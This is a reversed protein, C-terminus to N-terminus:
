CAVTESLFISLYIMQCATMFLVFIYLQSVFHCSIETTQIYGVL